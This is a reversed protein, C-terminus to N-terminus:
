GLKVLINTEVSNEPYTIFLEEPTATRPNYYEVLAGYDTRGRDWNDDMDDNIMRFRNSEADAAFPGSYMIHGLRVEFFDAWIQWNLVETGSEFNTALSMNLGGYVFSDGAQYGGFNLVGGGNVTFGVNAGSLMADGNLDIALPHGQSSAVWVAYTNGEVVLNRTYGLIDPDNADLIYSVSKTEGTAADNFYIVRESTDIDDYQLIASPGVDDRSVVFYDDDSIWFDSGSLDITLGSTFSPETFWFDDDADGWKITENLAIVLPASYMKGRSNTVKLGYENDGYAGFEIKSSAVSDVSEFVVDLGFLGEPEDLFDKVGQGPAVYLISGVNADAQLDYKIGTIGSAGVILEVTADEINEAGIEVSGGNTSSATNTDTFKVGPGSIFFDVSSSKRKAQIDSVGLQLSNLLFDTDGVGINDTLVGDVSFKAYPTGSTEVFVLTVEMTLGDVIFTDTEGEKMSGEFSSAPILELSLGDEGFSTARFIKYAKGLIPIYKGEYPEALAQSFTGEWSFFPLGTDVVFFDGLTDDENEVYNVAILQLGDGITLSQGFTTSSKKEAIIYDALGPLENATLTGSVMERIHQKMQFEGYEISPPAIDVGPPGKSGGKAEGAVNSDNCAALVLLFCLAFTLIHKTVM